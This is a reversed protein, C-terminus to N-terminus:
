SIDDTVRYAVTKKLLTALNEIWFDWNPYIKSPRPITFTASNLM